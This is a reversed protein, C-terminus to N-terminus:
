DGTMRERGDDDAMAASLSFEFAILSSLKALREKDPSGNPGNAKTFQHRLVV